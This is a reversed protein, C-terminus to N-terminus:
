EKAKWDPCTMEKPCRPCQRLLAVRSLLRINVSEPIAKSCYGYGEVMVYHTCDPCRMSNKGKRGFLAM